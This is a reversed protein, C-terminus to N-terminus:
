PGTRSGGSQRTGDPLGVDVLSLHPAQAQWAQRARAASSALTVRFGAARLREALTEGVNREDEVLLLHAGASV